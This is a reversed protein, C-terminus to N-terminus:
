KVFGIKKLWEVYDDNRKKARESYFEHFGDFGIFLEFRAKFNEANVRNMQKNTLTNVHVWEHTGLVMDMLEFMTKRDSVTNGVLKSVEQELKDIRLSESNKVQM